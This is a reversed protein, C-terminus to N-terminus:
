KGGYYANTTDTGKFVPLDVKLEQAYNLVQMMDKPLCTGGYPKGHMVAGYESVRTDLAVLRAIAHSNLEMKETLTNVDNWFSIQAALYCNTLLKTLESQTSSCHYVSVNMEMYLGELLATVTLSPMQVNQVPSGIVARDANLFDSENMNARLFEPNHCISCDILRRSLEQTTGPPVSSRIVINKGHPQMGEVVSIVQDEPVCILHLDADKDKNEGKDTYLIEHGFRRFGEGTAKGVIGEGIVHIIM